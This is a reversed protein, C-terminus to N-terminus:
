VNDVGKHLYYINVCDSLTLLENRSLKNEKRFTLVKEHYKEWPLVEDVELSLVSAIGHFLEDDNHYKFESWIGLPENWLPIISEPGIFGYSKLFSHTFAYVDDSSPIFLSLLKEFTGGKTPQLVIIAGDKDLHNVVDDLFSKLMKEKDSQNPESIMDFFSWSFFALDFIKDYNSSFYEIADCVTYEIDNIAIYKKAYQINEEIKDIATIHAYPFLTNLLKLSRGNGCGIDVINVGNKGQLRQVVPLMSIAELERSGDYTKLWNANETILKKTM